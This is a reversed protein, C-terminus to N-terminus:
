HWHPHYIIGNQKLLIALWHDYKQDAYEDRKITWKALRFAHRMTMGNYAQVGEGLKNDYYIWAIPAGNQDHKYEIRAIHHATILYVVTGCNIIKM